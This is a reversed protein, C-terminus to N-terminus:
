ENNKVLHEGLPKIPQPEIEMGDRLSLVGEFVIKDHAKLGDEVLYYHGVRPGAQFPTMIVTNEDSVVYVYTRDQIEFVSKQHVVLNQGTQLPVSIKGSAGHKLLGSTNPFRARLSITGTTAEFENEAFEASGTYPYDEGNALSLKVATSFDMSSKQSDSLINLYEQESIDFYAYVEDLDSVSTLLAGENLLSGEKLPIRDIRGDFPSRITTYSLRTKAHQFLSQAEQVRSQAANLQAQAVDLDTKSVINKDVLLKTREVELAVTEADAIANNLAAEARAVESSYEDDDIKFLPQGQKVEDGEDVFIKELFGQLRSRVEVNKIAQIDAVYDNHITTDLSLVEAVPVVKLTNESSSETSKVTCAALVSIVLLLTGFNFIIRINKSNM